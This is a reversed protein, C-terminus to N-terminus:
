PQPETVARFRLAGHHVGASADFRVELAEFRFMSLSQGAVALPADDLAARALAAIEYTERKGKAQSWVNVTLLFEEGTETSTSHDAISVRGLTLYPFDLRAPAHDHVRSGGLRAVLPAHGLLAAHVTKQLELASRM